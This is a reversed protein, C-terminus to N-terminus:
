KKAKVSVTDIQKDDIDFADLTLVDGKVSLACYNNVAAFFRSFESHTKEKRLPAGGGGSVVYVIGGRELREYDHDHGSIVMDVGHEIFMRELMSRAKWKEGSHGGTTYIPFHMSVVVFKAGNPRAAKLQAELWKIQESDEDMPALVDLLIFHVGYHDASFWRGNGPMPFHETFFKEGGKEHNGLVAYFSTSARLGSVDKAFEQWDDTDKGGAVMDGTHIVVAPKRSMILSVIKRHVDHHTRSDGYVVMCKDCVPAEDAQATRGGAILLAASL